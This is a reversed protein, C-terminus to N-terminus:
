ANCNIDLSLFKEVYLKLRIKTYKCNLTQVEVKPLMKINIVYM